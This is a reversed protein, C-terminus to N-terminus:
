EPLPGTASEAFLKMFNRTGYNAPSGEVLEAVRLKEFFIRNWPTLKDDSTM